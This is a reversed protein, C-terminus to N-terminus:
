KKRRTMLRYEHLARAYENYLKTAVGKQRRDAAQVYAKRMAEVTKRKLELHRKDEPTM